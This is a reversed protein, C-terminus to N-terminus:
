EKDEVLQTNAELSTLNKQIQAKDEALISLEKEIISISTEMKEVEAQDVLSIKETDDIKKILEAVQSSRHQIKEDLRAKLKNKEELQITQPHIEKQMRDVAKHLKASKLIVKLERESIGEEELIQEITKKKAM